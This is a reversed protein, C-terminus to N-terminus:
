NADVVSLTLTDTYEGAIALELDGAYETWQSKLEVSFVGTKGADQGTVQVAAGGTTESFWQRPSNQFHGTSLRADYFVIEEETSEAYPLNLSVGGVTTEARNESQLQVDYPFNALIKINNITRVGDGADELAMQLETPISQNDIAAYKEVIISVDITEDDYEAQGPDGLAVAVPLILLFLGALVRKQLTMDYLGRRYLNWEGSESRPGSGHGYFRIHKLAIFIMRSVLRYL